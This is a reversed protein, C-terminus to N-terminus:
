KAVPEVKEPAPAVQPEIGLEKEIIAKQQQLAQIQQGIQDKRANAFEVALEHINKEEEPKKGAVPRVIRSKTQEQIYVAVSESVIMQTYINGLNFLTGQIQNLQAALQQKKANDIQEQTPENQTKKKFMKSKRKNIGKAM